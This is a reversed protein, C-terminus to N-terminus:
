KTVPLINEVQFITQNKTSILVACGSMLGPSPDGSLKVHSIYVYRFREALLDFGPILRVSTNDDRILSSLEQYFDDTSKEINNTEFKDLCVEPIGTCSGGLVLDIYSGPDVQIEFPKQDPSCQPIVHAPKHGIVFLFAPLITAFAIMAASVFRLSMVEARRHVDPIMGPQKEKMLLSIGVAPIVYFFPVTGAYFRTGGDIPPLFPISLFTGLFGALLLSSHRSHIDKFLRILGIVMLTVAGLWAILNFWYQWGEGMFPFINGTAFGFFERYAKAFGIFLSLPHERFFKWAEQYVISPNRTGLDEIASHWGTGGRVQGYITYAFNSFSSGLPIGLFRSYVSNFLFYGAVICGLVYVAAKVSIRTEGRRIWGAWIALMPFIFFAGARASVAVLLTLLGLLLDIWNLRAATLWLLSFAFCGAVFGLSESMTYGVWPMIYFYLFATFIAGALAGFSNRIQRAAVFLGVGMLQVIIGITLKLNQGTFFLVAALFSPFLPRETAQGARVVPLGYRILEAGLYFNKADKYPLLGGIIFNDSFGSTWVYSLTLAFLAM